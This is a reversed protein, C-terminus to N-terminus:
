QFRFISLNRRLIELDKFYSLRSIFFDRHPNSGQIYPRLQTTVWTSIKIYLDHPNVLGDPISIVSVQLTISEPM